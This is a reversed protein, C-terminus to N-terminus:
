NRVICQRRIWNFLAICSFKTSLAPSMLAMGITQQPMGVLGTDANLVVVAKRAYEEQIFRNEWLQIAM